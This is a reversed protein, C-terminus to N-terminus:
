VGVGSGGEDAEEVWVKKLTAKGVPKIDPICNAHGDGQYFDVKRSKGDVYPLQECYVHHACYDGMDEKVTKYVVYRGALYSLEGGITVNGEGWEGFNGKANSSLFHIPLRTCIRNGVELKVIDGEKLLKRELDYLM